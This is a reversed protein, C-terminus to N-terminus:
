SHRHQALLNELKRYQEQDPIGFRLANNEDCLRVYLGQRCFKEYLETAQPHTLTKFLGCGSIEINQIIPNNPEVFVETLLQELKISLVILQERQKSQWSPDNM